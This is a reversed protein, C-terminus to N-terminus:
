DMIFYFVSPFCSLFLCFCFVKFLIPWTALHQLPHFCPLTSLKKNKDGFFFFGYVVKLTNFTFKKFKIILMLIIKLQIVIISILWM